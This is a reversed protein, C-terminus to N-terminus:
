IIFDSKLKLGYIFSGSMNKKKKYGESLLANYFDTTSRIFAGTRMCFARYESYLQGSKETFNIDIDCCEELFEGLWNNDEKYKEIADKVVKPKELKFNAEIVEKSGTLIWELIAGGANEYLYDAYNKIDGKGKIQANFPIVILRRWTGNDIAGVKPLHNTYLVLTHSPVYSFPSKFKKEAFIEDTSCLQKVNSTNMRMGEELEAAILLRKGKAEALEPKVNRRCGVTLMDASINGSYSGLVRAVVNWFTSKGNSGEGYAIILAEVYVKGVVALGVIKQVYKILEEDGMFFTRLAEEWLKEGKNSPDISTQKSIFDNYDHEKSLGTKLNYTKSPTNLLFEDRDLSTPEIQILPRVEKLTSWINKSDRRKIAYKEYSLAQEYKEVIRRQNDDLNEKVKKMGLSTIMPMAGADTLQKLCLNIEDHAEKLQLETLEHAVAQANPVSEEWYSGNYVLYDTAPSYKIRDQFERSLVIAQGVDSYDTPKFKFEQNYDEPKIYGEQSAIKKGFKTASYWISNLESDDLPPTCKSAQELYMLYSEETAGYRKIIKGALHSMTSNRSGQEIVPTHDKLELLTFADAVGLIEDLNKEGDFWIVEDPINGFIFRSCDLANKDFFNYKEYVQKKFIECEDSTLFLRHPIYVHHRPRAVKGNKEKNNNRSPVVVHSAGELLYEYDEPYIWDNPNDSHENDCDFVDCDCELFNDKNRYNNKFNACVHDFCVAEKLQEINKILCKVDYTCNKANSQVNSRHITLRM